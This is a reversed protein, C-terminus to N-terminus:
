SRGSHGSRDPLREPAVAPSRHAALDQEEAHRALDLWLQAMDVWHVQIGVTLAEQALKFCREANRRFDEAL